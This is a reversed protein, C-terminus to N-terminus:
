IKKGELKRILEWAQKKTLQELVDYGYVNLTNTVILSTTDDDEAQKLRWLQPETIQEPENPNEIVRQEELVKLLGILAHAEHRTFDNTTVVGLAKGTAIIIAQLEPRDWCKVLYAHQAETLQNSNSKQM